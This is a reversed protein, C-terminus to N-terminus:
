PCSPSTTFASRPGNLEPARGAAVLTETMRLAQRTAAVDHTRIIAVGREVAWCACALSGALRDAPREVGTVHGVFSKRSAGVLLPRGLSHFEDLRALLQLNHEITKGFGLGVDLVMQERAVGARQVADLRQAFFATVEGVVDGYRPATQMTQPTGQMHMLVYGAGTEAVLRWMADDDRNAAVDNVLSAGARLAARAVAPKMTDISIPARVRDALAEIVPLVRRQEEEESVPPANPRTSEGGIDLLDAGESVLDLAHQVAAPPDFFRGGDSFSDPTVNVVGM